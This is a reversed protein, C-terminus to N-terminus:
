NQDPLRGHLWWKRCMWQGVSDGRHTDDHAAEGGPVDRLAIGSLSGIDRADGGDEDAGDPCLVGEFAALFPMVFGSEGGNDGAGEVGEVGEAVVCGRGNRVAAGGSPNKVREIEPSLGERIVADLRHLAAAGM